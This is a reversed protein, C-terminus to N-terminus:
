RPAGQALNGRHLAKTERHKEIFDWPGLAQLEDATVRDGPVSLMKAMVELDDAYELNGCYLHTAQSLATKDILAPRQSTAMLVLEAHRGRTMVATWGPGGGNSRVFASLEEALLGCRKAAMALRCVRDFQERAIKPDDSPLFRVKFAPAQMAQALDALRTYAPMGEYERMTDIVVLRALQLRDIQAKCRTSKGSGTAGIAILINAQKHASATGTPAPSVGRKAAKAPREPPRRTAM